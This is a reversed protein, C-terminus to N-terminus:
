RGMALPFFFYIGKGLINTYLSVCVAEDTIQDRGTLDTKLLSLTNLTDVICHLVMKRKDARGFFRTAEVCVEVVIFLDGSFTTWCKIQKLSRSKLSLGGEILSYMCIYVYISITAISFPVKPDGEVVTPWSSYIYTKIAYVVNSPSETKCEILVISNM